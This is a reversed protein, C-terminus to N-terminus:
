GRSVRRRHTTRIRPKSPNLNKGVFWSTCGSCTVDLISGEFPIAHRPLGSRFQHCPTLDRDRLGKLLFHVNGLINVLSFKRELIPTM